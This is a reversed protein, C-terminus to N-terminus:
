TNSMLLRVHVAHRCAAAETTTAQAQIKLQREVRTLAKSATATDTVHSLLQRVDQLEEITQVCAVSGSFNAYWTEYQICWMASPTRPQLRCAHVKQLALKVTARDKAAIAAAPQISPERRLTGLM